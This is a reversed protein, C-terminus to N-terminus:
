AKVVVRTDSVLDHFLVEKRFSTFNLSFFRSVTRWLISKLTLQGGHISVVKTNTIYKGLTQRGYYESVVYYLSCSVIWIGLTLWTVWEKEDSSREIANETIIIACVGILYCMGGDILFNLFRKAISAKLGVFGNDTKM